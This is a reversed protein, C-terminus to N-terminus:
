HVIVRCADEVDRKRLASDSTVKKLDQSQKRLSERIWDQMKSFKETEFLQDFLDKLTENDKFMWFQDEHHCFVINELVPTSVGLMQPIM